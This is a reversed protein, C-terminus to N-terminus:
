CTSIRTRMAVSLVFAHHDCQDASTRQYLRHTNWPHETRTRVRNQKRALHRLCMPNLGVFAARYPPLPYEDEKGSVNKAMGKNKMIYESTNKIKTSLETM